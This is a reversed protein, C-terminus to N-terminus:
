GRALRRIARLSGGVRLRSLERLSRYALHLRIIRKSRAVKAARSWGLAEARGAIEDFARFEEDFRLMSESQHATASEDHRRYAYAARHSGVIEEGELLLNTTFVLDQVQKWEDPFRRDALRSKRYCLTPTMIFYGAMLDALASEGRLVTEDADPDRRPKLFGKFWDAFSFRAQGREGIIDTECYFAAARPHREALDLMLAAYDPLLVDDAHLLNVLDTETEDRCRNWNAVMGLNTENRLYRMRSDDHEEVLARAGSDGLGSDDCVLLRWHSTNQAAVSAIAVELYELNSYFPIAFTIEPTM